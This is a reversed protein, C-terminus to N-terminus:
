GLHNIPDSYMFDSVNRFDPYPSEEAFSISEAVEQIVQKDLQDIKNASIGNKSLYTKFIKLPDHTKKYREVVEENRYEAELYLGTNHEHFRYTKAEIM